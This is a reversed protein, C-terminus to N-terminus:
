GHAGPMPGTMRGRLRTVPHEDSVVLLRRAPRPDRAAGGIVHPHLEIEAEDGAGTRASRGFTVSLRAAAENPTFESSTRRGAAEREGAFKCPRATARAACKSTHGVDHDRNAWLGRTILLGDVRDHAIREQLLEAGVTLHAQHARHAVPAFEDGLHRQHGLAVALHDPEDREALHGKVALTRTTQAKGRHRDGGFELAGADAPGSM